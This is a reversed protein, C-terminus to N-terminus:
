ALAKAARLLDDALIRLNPCKAIAINPDVTPFVNRAHVTKKYRGGLIRQLFKAPPENLNVAEPARKQIQARVHAPFHEPYALLWAEVEHVAFHQRFRGHYKSAVLGKVYSRVKAIRDIVSGCASLDIRTTPIGYLDILGFM